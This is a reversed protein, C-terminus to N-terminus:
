SPHHGEDEERQKKTMKYIDKEEEKMGLRQYIGDYMRDRVESLASKTTRKAVKYQELNDASRDLHM